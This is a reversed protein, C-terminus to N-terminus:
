NGRVRLRSKKGRKQKRTAGDMRLLEAFLKEKSGAQALAAKATPLFHLLMMLLLLISFIVALWSKELFWGSLPLSLFGVNLSLIPNRTIITVVVMVGIVIALERTMMLSLVGIAASIGDGGSFKLYISWIHGAVAALGALALFPQPAVLVLEAIAVAAAGKGIDLVAVPIAARLGVERYVNRAGANGGGLKRIDKGTALRTILYAAPFSGLLYAIVVAIVGNVM